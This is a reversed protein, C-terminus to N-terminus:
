LLNSLGFIQERMLAMDDPMSSVCDKKNAFFYSRGRDPSIM